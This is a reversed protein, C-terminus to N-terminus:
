DLPRGSGCKEIVGEPRVALRLRQHGNRNAPLAPHDGGEDDAEGFGVARGRGLHLQQVLDTTLNRETHLPQPQLRTDLVLLVLHRHHRFTVADGAVHVVAEDLVDIGQPELELMRAVQNGLLGAGDCRHQGAGDLLGVM